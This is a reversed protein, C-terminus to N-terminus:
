RYDSLKRDGEKRFYITFESGIGLESEVTVTGGHREAIKLALPMGLGYGEGNRSSDVKYFRNFIKEQDEKSIGIGEDKVRVYVYEGKVGETVMVKSEESSYKLANDILNSIAIIVLEINGKCEAYEGTDHELIICRGKLRDCFDECLSEVIEKLDIDEETFPDRHQDLRALELLTWVIDEMRKSQRLITACVERSESITGSNNLVLQCQAKMVSIPNRLEHAVDSIFQEQQRMNKQIREILRNEAEIMSDLEVIRNDLEIQRLGDNIGIQDVTHKMEEFFKQIERIYHYLLLSLLLVALFSVTYTVIRFIRYKRSIMGQSVYVRIFGSLDLGRPLERDFYYYVTGNIREKVPAMQKEPSIWDGQPSEGYVVNGDMDIIASYRDPKEEQYPDEMSGLHYENAQIGRTLANVQHMLDSRVDLEMAKSIYLHVLVFIVLIVTFEFGLMVTKLHRIMSKKKIIKKKRNLQEGM